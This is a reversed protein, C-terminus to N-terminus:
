DPINTDSNYFYRFLVIGAASAHPGAGGGGTNAVAASGGGAGGGYGGAGFAGGADPHGAAGGGGSFYRLAGDPGPAGYDSPLSSWPVAKGYGGPQPSGPGGPGSGNGGAQGAGGGGGSMNDAGGGTGSGVGGPFGQPPSSGTPTSQGTQRDGVGGARQPGDDGGAGGGSGGPNGASTAPTNGGAGGGWATTQSINPGDIYSPTGNNNTAGGAGVRITYPNATATFSGGLFGGAGGGSGGTHQGAGGGGGGGIIYYEVSAPFGTSSDLATVVFNETSSSNTFAHHKYYRTEGSPGNPAPTIFDTGGTAQLVATIPIVAKNVITTGRLSLDNNRYVGLLKSVSRALSSRIPSM